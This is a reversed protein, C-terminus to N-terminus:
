PVAFERHGDKACCWVDPDVVDANEAYAAEWGEHGVRGKMFPTISSLHLVKSSRVGATAAAFLSPTLDTVNALVVRRKAISPDTSVGLWGCKESSSDADKGTGPGSACVRTDNPFKPFAETELLSVDVTAVSRRITDPLEPHSLFSHERLLDMKQSREVAM